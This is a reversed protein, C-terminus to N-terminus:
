RFSINRFPLYSNEDSHTPARDASDTRRTTARPSVIAALSRTGGPSSVGVIDSPGHNKQMLCWV